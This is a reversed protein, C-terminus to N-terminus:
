LLNNVKRMDREISADAQKIEISVGCIWIWICCCSERDIANQLKSPTITLPFDTLTQRFEDSEPDSEILAQESLRWVEFGIRVIADEGGVLIADFAVESGALSLVNVFM